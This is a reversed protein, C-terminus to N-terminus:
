SDLPMIMQRNKTKNGISAEESPGGGAEEAEAALKAEKEKLQLPFFCTVGAQQAHYFVLIDVQVIM